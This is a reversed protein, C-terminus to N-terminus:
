FNFVTQLGFIDVDEFTATDTDFSYNRYVLGVTAGISNFSQVATIGIADGDSNDQQHDDTQNWNFAFNTGGVGFIKARYGLQFNWFEPDSRTANTTGGLQTRGIAFAANLGSDHLAAGSISKTSETRTLDNITQGASSNNYQAQVRVTIAGMKTRYDAGLDWDGGAIMSTALSLGAFRPSDYRLVDNRSRGDMNTFSSGVTIASLTNAAATSNVYRIGDGLPTGSSLDIAGTGALSTESRGNSASNTHGLSLKGMRKHNVWVFMHRTAFAGNATETGDDALGGAVTGLNMSGQPNSLPLALEVTGGASVTENMTGKAVWRVRSTSTSGDTNFVSDSEGDDAYWLARAIFGSMTLSNKNGSKLTDDAANVSPAVPAAIAFLAAAAVSSKLTTKINV